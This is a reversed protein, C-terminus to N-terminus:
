PKEMLTQSMHFDVYILAIECDKKLQELTKVMNQSTQVM